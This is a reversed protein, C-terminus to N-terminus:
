SLVDSGINRGLREKPHGSHLFHTRLAVRCKKSSKVPRKKLRGSPLNHSRLAMWRSLVFSERSLGFRNRPYGSLLFNTRMARRCWSIDSWRWLWLRMKLRGSPLNHNIQAMRRSLDDSGRSRGIGKKPHRSALFHTRTAKECRSVDSWRTMSKM